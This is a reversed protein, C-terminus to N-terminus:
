HHNQTVSGAFFAVVCSTISNPPYPQGDRRRVELIFKSIWYDLQASTCLLIHPPCDMPHCCQRRHHTWEHWVNKAWSTNKITNKPVARARAAQLEADSTPTAFRLHSPSTLKSPAPGCPVSSTSDTSSTSPEVYRDLEESNFQSLLYDLQKGLSDEETDQLLQQTQIECLDDPLSAM